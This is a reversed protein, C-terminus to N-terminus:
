RGWCETHPRYHDLKGDPYLIPPLIYCKYRMKIEVPDEDEDEPAVGPLGDPDVRQRGDSAVGTRGDPDVDPDTNNLSPLDEGTDMNQDLGSEFLHGDSSITPMQFLGHSKM